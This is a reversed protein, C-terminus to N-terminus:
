GEAAPRDSRAAGTALRVVFGDDTATMAIEPCLQHAIWLGFGAGAGEGESSAARLGALPDDPGPGADAVRVTVRGPVGWGCVSVPPEGHVLANTAVESVALVLNDTESSALEMTQALYTVARRVTRVSPDALDVAAPQAELPDSVVQIRNAMFTSPPQYRPNPQHGDEPTVIVPHVRELEERVGTTLEDTDFLCLARLPIDSLEHNVAAEYRIWSDRDLGQSPSLEGVIRFPTSGGTHNHWATRLGELAGPPHPYQEDHSTFLLKGPEVIASRLLEAQRPFVGVLTPEGAAIGAECFPVSMELFERDSGYFGVAHVLNGVEAATTTM